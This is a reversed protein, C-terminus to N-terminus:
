RAKAKPGHDPIRAEEGEALLGHRKLYRAQSKADFKPPAGPADIGWWTSPRTGPRHEIWWKLVRPRAQEWLSVTHERRTGHGGFTHRIFPNEPERDFFYAWQDDTLKPRSRKRISSPRRRAM